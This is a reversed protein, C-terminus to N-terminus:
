TYQRLIAFASYSSKVINVFTELSIIIIGGARFQTLRLSGEMFIMVNKKFSQDQNIWNCDYIAFTLEEIKGTFASGFYSITFVQSLASLLFLGFYIRKLPNDVFFLVLVISSCIVWNSVLLQLFQGTSITKNILQFQKLILQFDQISSILDSKANGSDVNYGIRSVRAILLDLHSVLMSIFVVPFSDNVANTTTLIGAAILQYGMLILYTTLSNKWDFPFWAPQIFRRERFFFLSIVSSVFVSAYVIFHIIALRKCKRIHNNYEIQNLKIDLCNFIKSIEEFLEIRWCYLFVKISCLVVIVIYFLQEVLGSINDKLNFVEVSLTLPYCVHIVVIILAGYAIYFKNWNSNYAGVYKLVQWHINTAEAFGQRALTTM